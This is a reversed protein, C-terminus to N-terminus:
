EEGTEAWDTRRGANFGRLAERSGLEWRGTGEEATM